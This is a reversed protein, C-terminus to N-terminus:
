AASQQVERVYPYLHETEDQIRALMLEFLEMTELTFQKHDGLKFGNKDKKCWNSVYQSMIRKLETEGSMFREAMNNAQPNKDILLGQYLSDVLVIHENVQDIFKYLLYICTENDCMERKQLLYMLVNVTDTLKHNHMNMEELTVM